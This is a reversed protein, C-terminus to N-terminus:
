SHKRGFLLGGLSLLVLTAPEPVTTVSLTPAYTSSRDVSYLTFKDVKYVTGEKEPSWTSGNANVRVIRYSSYTGAQRDADVLGTVDWTLTYLAASPVTQVSGVQTATASWDAVALANGNSVTYHELVLYGANGWTGSVTLTASTVEDSVDQLSFKLVGRSNNYNTTPNGVFIFDNTVAPGYQYVHGELATAPQIDVMTTARASSCVVCLVTVMMGLFMSKM